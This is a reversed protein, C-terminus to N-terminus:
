FVLGDNTSEEFLAKIICVVNMVDKENLQDNLTIFIPNVNIPKLKLEIRYGKKYNTCFHFSVGDKLKVDFGCVKNEPLPYTAAVMKKEKVKNYLETLSTM